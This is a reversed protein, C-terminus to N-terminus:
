ANLRWIGLNLAAAFGVWAWYPVMLAAAPRSVGYFLVVTVGIALWLAVIEVFAPGPARAGFFILSWLGNLILQVAFAALAIRIEPRDTGQRWVLYLAVGMMLYLVTWVPAFVWSPPTFGPKQLAPYWERVGRATAFGSLIGVAQPILLSIILRGV